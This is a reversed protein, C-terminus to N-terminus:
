GESKIVRDVTMIRASMVLERLGFGWQDQVQRLVGPHLRGLYAGRIVRVLTRGAKRHMVRLRRISSYLQRLYEEPLRIGLAFAFANFEEWRLPAAASDQPSSPIWTRVTAYSVQVGSQVLREHLLKISSPRMAYVLNTWQSRHGAENGLLTGDLAEMLRQSFSAQFDSDVVLVEDGPSLDAARCTSIVGSRSGSVVELRANPGVYLLSGDTFQLGLEDREFLRPAEETSTDSVESTLDMRLDLKVTQGDDIPAMLARFRNAFAEYTAAEQPAGREKLHAAIRHTERYAWGAEIPDVIFHVCQPALWRIRSLHRPGFFGCCVIAGPHNDFQGDPSEPELGLAELDETEIGLLSRTEELALRAEFRTRGMVQIPNQSLTVLANVVAHRREYSGSTDNAAARLLNDVAHFFAIEPSDKQNREGHAVLWRRYEMVDGPDPCITQRLSWWARTAQQALRASYHSLDELGCITDRFVVDAQPRDRCVLTSLLQPNWPGSLSALELRHSAVEQINLDLYQAPGDLVVVTPHYATRAQLVEKAFNVARTGRVGQLNVLLVDVETFRTVAGQDLGGPASTMVALRMGNREAVKGLVPRHGTKVSGATGVSDVSVFSHAPLTLNSLRRKHLGYRTEWDSWELDKPHHRSEQYRQWRAARRREFVDEVHLWFGEVIARETRSFPLVGFTVNMPLEPVLDPQLLLLYFPLLVAEPLPADLLEVVVPCRNQLSSRLASVLCALREDLAAVPQGGESRHTADLGIVTVPGGERRTM